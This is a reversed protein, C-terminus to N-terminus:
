QNMPFQYEKKIASLYYKQPSAVDSFKLLGDSDTQGKLVNKGASFTIFVDELVKGDQDLVNVGLRAVRRAKFTYQAGQEEMREFTYDHMTIEVIYNDKETPGHSFKGEADTFIITPQRDKIALQNERQISVQAGLVAPVTLGTVFMGEIIKFNIGINKHLERKEVKLKRMAPKFM